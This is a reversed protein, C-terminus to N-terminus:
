GDGADDLEQLAQRFGLLLSYQAVHLPQGAGRGVARGAPLQQAETSDRALIQTEHRFGDLGAALPNVGLTLRLNPAVWQSRGWNSMCNYSVSSCTNEELVM